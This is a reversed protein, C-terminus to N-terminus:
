TALREMGKVDNSGFKFPQHQEFNEERSLRSRKRRVVFFAAIAGIILIAIVIGAIAGGSIGSSGGGNDSKGNSGNSQQGPSSKRPPPPPATFPPPPPAPGSNWSNGDTTLSNIKKLQNPIWGTFHNNAINLTQLPLLALVNISGTFQNNQLYLSNLSSLASFSEPLDGTLGNSSLDL